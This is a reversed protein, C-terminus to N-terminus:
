GLPAYPYLFFGQSRATDQSTGFMKSCIKPESRAASVWVRAIGDPRLTDFSWVNLDDAIYEEPNQMQCDPQMLSGETVPKVEWGQNLLLVTRRGTNRRSPKETECRDSEIKLM